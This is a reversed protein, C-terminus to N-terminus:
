LTGLYEITFNTLHGGVSKTFTQGSVWIKPTITTPANVDIVLEAEATHGATSGCWVWDGALETSGNFWGAGMRAATSLSGHIRFVCRYLGSKNLTFSTSGSEASFYDEWDDTGVIKYGCTTNFWGSAASSGTQNESVGRDRIAFVWM